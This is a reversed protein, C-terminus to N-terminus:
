DIILKFKGSGVIELTEITGCKQGGPVQCEGKHYFKRIDGQIYDAKIEEGNLFVTVIGETTVDIARAANGAGLVTNLLNEGRKVSAPAMGGDEPYKSPGPNIFQIAM